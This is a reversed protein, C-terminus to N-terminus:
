YSFSKLVLVYLRVSLVAVTPELMPICVAKLPTVRAKGIVFSCYNRGANDLM